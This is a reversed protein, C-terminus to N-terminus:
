NNFYFEKCNDYSDNLRIDEILRVKLRYGSSIKTTLRELSCGPGIDIQESALVRSM